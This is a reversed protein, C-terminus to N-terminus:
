TLTISVKYNKSSSTIYYNTYGNPDTGFIYGFRKSTGNSGSGVFPLTINTVNTCGRFVYEGFSTVNEPVVISTITDFNYFQYSGITTIDSAIELKTIEYYANENNRFYILHM